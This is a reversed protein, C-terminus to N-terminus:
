KRSFTRQLDEKNEISEIFNVIHATTNLIWAATEGINKIHGYGISYSGLYNQIM